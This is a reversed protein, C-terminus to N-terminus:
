KVNVSTESGYLSENVGVVTERDPDADLLTMALPQLLQREILRAIGRAGAEREAGLRAYLGTM